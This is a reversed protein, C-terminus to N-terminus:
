GAYFTNKRRILVEEHCSGIERGQAAQHLYFVKLVLKQAVSVGPAVNKPLM